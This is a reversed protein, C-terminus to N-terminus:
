THSTTIGSGELMEQVITAERSELIINRLTKAEEVFEFADRIVGLLTEINLDREVQQLL